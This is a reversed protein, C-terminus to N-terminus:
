NPPKELNIMIQPEPNLWRPRHPHPTDFTFGVHRRFDCGVVPVGTACITSRDNRRRICGSRAIGCVVSPFKQLTPRLTRRECPNLRTVRRFGILQGSCCRLLRSISQISSMRQGVLGLWLGLLNRVFRSMWRLMRDPLVNHMRGHTRRARQAIRRTGLWIRSPRSRSPHMIGMCDAFTGRM